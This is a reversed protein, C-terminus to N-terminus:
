MGSKYMLSTTEFQHKWQWEDLVLQNFTTADIEIVDEVSLELMRIARVYSDEYSVPVSPLQKTKKIKNLDKTEIITLNDNAIKYVLVIYDAVSENFEKVHKEKNDRVIQLLEERNIKVNKMVNNEPDRM